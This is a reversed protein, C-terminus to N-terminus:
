STLERGADHAGRAPDEGRFDAHLGLPCPERAGDEVALLKRAVRHHRQLHPDIDVGTIEDGRMRVGTDFHAVHEVTATREPHFAGGLAGDVRAIREGHRGPRRMIQLVPRRSCVDERDVDDVLAFRERGRGRHLEEAAARPARGVPRFDVAPTTIQWLQAGVSGGAATARHAPASPAEIRYADFTGGDISGVVYVPTGPKLEFGTPDIITGQHLTVSELAGREDRVTLGYKRDISMVVGCLTHGDEGAGRPCVRFATPFDVAIGAGSVSPRDAAMAPSGGAMAPSGGALALAGTLGILISLRLMTSSM